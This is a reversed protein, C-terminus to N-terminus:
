AADLEHADKQRRRESRWRSASTPPEDLRLYMDTIEAEVLAKGLLRADQASATPIKM